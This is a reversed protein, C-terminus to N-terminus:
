PRTHTPLALTHQHGATHLLLMRVALEAVAKCWRRGTGPRDTGLSLSICECTHSSLVCAHSAAVCAHACLCRWVRACVRLAMCARVENVLNALDAGTFGTTMTAVEEVSVDAALPLGQRQLHVRL